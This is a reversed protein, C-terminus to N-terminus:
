SKKDSDTPAAQPRNAPAEYGPQGSPDAEYKSACKAQVKEAVFRGDPMRKGEVLAQAGDVFTDPLPDGGVYSVHLTRGEQTIVFDVRGRLREISGAQIDGGVRLRHSDGRDGMKELEEITYYYTKSEMAGIYGLWGLTVLIVASAVVFKARKHV